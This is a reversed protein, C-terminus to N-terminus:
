FSNNKRVHTFQDLDLGLNKQLFIYQAAHDETSISGDIVKADEFHTGSSHSPEPAWSGSVVTGLSSGNAPEALFRHGRAILGHWHLFVNERVQPFCTAFQAYTLGPRQEVFMFQDKIRRKWRYFTRQQMNPFHRSMEAFDMFPDTELFQYEAKQTMDKRSWLLSVESELRGETESLRPKKTPTEDDTGTQPSALHSTLQSQLLRDTYQQLIAMSSVADSGGADETGSSEM